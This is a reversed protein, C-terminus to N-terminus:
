YSFSCKKDIMLVVLDNVVCVPMIYQELLPAVYRALYNWETNKEDKMKSFVDRM